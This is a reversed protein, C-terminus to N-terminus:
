LVEESFAIGCVSGLCEQCMRSIEEAKREIERCISTRWFAFRLLDDKNETKTVLFEKYGYSSRSLQFLYVYPMAALDRETLPAYKMYERVYNVFDATDFPAGGKCAGGSQIYSRMIEWVAPLCKCAAFDIVARVRNGECVLQCATYDGHSPTYTIGAFWHKWQPLRRVLEKKYLLDARIRALTDADGPLEESAGGDTEAAKLLADFKVAADEAAFSEAWAEDMGKEMPYDRLLAHLMGLYKACEPLLEKPLDNLYTRGEIYEQVSIIHGNESVCVDGAATKRFRAAPFNRKALYETVAAEREAEGRSIDSQYEKLFFRGEACRIEFCNASGFPLRRVALLTLGYQRLIERIRNDTLVSKELAM